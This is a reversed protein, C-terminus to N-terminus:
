RTTWRKRYADCLWHAVDAPVGLFAEPFALAHENKRHVVLTSAREAGRVISWVTRSTIETRAVHSWPIREVGARTRALLDSPTLVMAIGRQAAAARRMLVIWMVPAVILCLAIVIPAVTGIAARATPDLRVFGDLVAVGLLVTAYPGRRLWGAGHPVVAIAPPRAGAAIEEWLKGVLPPVAPTGRVSARSEAGTAVDPIADAVPADSSSNTPATEGVATDAARRPATGRWRMLREALIGPTALFVPPLAVFLRGTQPRTVVCVDAWRRGSREAWAGEEVVGLVDERPVAVDGRPTRLVLGEAALALRYRNSRLWTRARRGLRVGLLCTRATLALALLRLLLALPDLPQGALGERFIAGAWFFAALVPALVARSGDADLIPPKQGSLVDIGEAARGALAEDARQIWDSM